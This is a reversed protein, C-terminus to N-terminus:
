IAGYENSNKLGTKKRPWLNGVEELEMTNQMYMTNKDELIKVQRKLDGLDELKKKYTEITAEYKVAKDSTHRLVDMEDKLSQAEEALAALEM